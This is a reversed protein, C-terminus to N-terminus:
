AVADLIRAFRAAQEDWGPFRAARAGAALREREQPNEILRRLVAALAHVDDPEVLVGAAPPVTDPIAGARTGVVPVGHAIAETYAMGYGEFRSPLVFLDTAAYLSALTAGSVAGVM